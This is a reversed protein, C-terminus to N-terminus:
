CADPCLGKKIADLIAKHGAESNFYREVSKLILDESCSNEWERFCEEVPGEIDSDSFNYDFWTEVSNSIQSDIDLSYNLYEKTEDLVIREIRDELDSQISAIVENVTKENTHEDLYNKIVENLGEILKSM